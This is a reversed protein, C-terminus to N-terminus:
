DDYEILPITSCSNEYLEIVPTESSANRQQRKEEISRMYRGLKLNILKANNV